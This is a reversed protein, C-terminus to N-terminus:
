EGAGARGPGAPRSQESATAPPEASWAAITARAIAEYRAKEAAFNPVSRWEGAAVSAELHREYDDLDDPFPWWNDGDVSAASPRQDQDNPITM